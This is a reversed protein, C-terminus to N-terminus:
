TNQHQLLLLLACTQKVKNQAGGKQTKGGVSKKALGKRLIPDPHKVIETETGGHVFTGAVGWSRDIDIM